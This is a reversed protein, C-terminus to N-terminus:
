PKAPVWWGLYGLGAVLVAIVVGVAVLVPAEKLKQLMMQRFGLLAPANPGRAAAVVSAADGATAPASVGTAGASVVGTAIRAVDESRLGTAKRIGGGDHFEISGADAAPGATRALQQGFGRCPLGIAEFEAKLAAVEGPHEETVLRQMGAFSFPSPAFQARGDGLEDLREFLVGYVQAASHLADYATESRFRRWHANASSGELEDVAVVTEVENFHEVACRQIEALFTRRTANDASDWRAEADSFAGVLKAKSVKLREQTDEIKGM